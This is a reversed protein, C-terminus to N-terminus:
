IIAVKMGVCLISVEVFAMFSFTLQNSGHFLLTAEVVFNFACYSGDTVCNGGSGADHPIVLKLTVNRTSNM